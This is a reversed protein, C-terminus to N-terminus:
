GQGNIRKKAEWIFPFLTKMWLRFKISLLDKPFFKKVYLTYEKYALGKPSYLYDIRKRLSTGQTKWPNGHDDQCEGCYDAALIVPCGAGIATLTYDYDAIGHTYSECFGGIKDYAGKSVMMINANGLAIRQLTGDPICLKSKEHGEHILARGGYSCEKSVPDMTPGVYVGAPFESEAIALKKLMDPYLHTDDNLLLYHSYDNGTEEAMKWAKRMGGAWFLGNCVALHVDPFEAAIAIPTGDSSGGDVIFIDFSDSQWGELAHIDKLCSLTKAKRNFVTLLIATRNM